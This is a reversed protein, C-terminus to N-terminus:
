FEISTKDLELVLKNKYFIQYQEEPNLIYYSQDSDWYCHYEILLRRKNVEGTSM